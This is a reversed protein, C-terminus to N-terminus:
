LAQVSNTSILFTVPTESKQSNISVFLRASIGHEDVAGGTLVASQVDLRNITIYPLWFEVAQTIEATIFDKISDINQEFLADRLKTGFLPQMPREGRYTLLLNKLNSIAQDKTSYTSIFVGPGTGETAAKVGIAVDPYFSDPAIKIEYAM